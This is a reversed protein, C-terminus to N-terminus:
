GDGHEVADGVVAELGEGRKRSRGANGLAHPKRGHDGDSRESGGTQKRLLRRGDVLEGSSPQREPKGHAGAGLVVLRSLRLMSAAPLLEGLLEGVDAALHVAVADTWRAFSDFQEDAAKGAPGERPHRAVRVLDSSCVDSSWDCLSRTHRRRSSFFFFVWSVVM